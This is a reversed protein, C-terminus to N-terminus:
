EGGAAAAADMGAKRARLAAVAGLVGGLATALSRYKEPVFPLAATIFAAASAAASWVTVSKHAPKQTM